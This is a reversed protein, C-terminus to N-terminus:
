FLKKTVVTMNGSKVEQEIAQVISQIKSATSVNQQTQTTLVNTPGRGPFFMLGVDTGKMVASQLRNSPEHFQEDNARGLFIDGIKGAGIRLNDVSKGMAEGVDSVVKDVKQRFNTLGIYDALRDSMMQQHGDPDVFKLSNNLCYQYKNLSQPDHIDAYFTPNHAAVEAFLETPGGTFEDPSTFRGMVSSYYRAEFYDLGTEADREKSTFGQRPPQAQLTGYGDSTQRHGMGALLEEGFPLYDRRKMGSLNGTQDVLMRPTGLGDTVLWQCAGTAEAIVLLQGNRYGYEKKLTATGSVVQYEAVLEGGVGYVQWYEKQVGDELAVRRVRRGDADYTYSGYVTTGSDNTATKIRNEADYNFRAASGGTWTDRTLNGAVDYEMAGSQGAPVKLRHTTALPQNNADTSIDLAFAKRNIGIGWTAVTDLLRNGFRDYKYHQAYAQPLWGISGGGVWSAAPLEDVRTLRNLEDYGYYDVGLMWTAVNGSGDLTAPVFIDQRYLNGNNSQPTVTPWTYDNYSSSYYMRLAGRNWSTGTQNANPGDYAPDSGTGLRVDFLQGRTNYHRRHYLATATGFQERTMQGQPNYLLGTSYTRQTVGDGLKGSFSVLDGAADYSYNANHSAGAPYTKTLIHDALDYTQSTTFNSSWSGGNTKFQQSVSLPRGLADFGNVTKKEVTQGNTEDGGAYSKWLMGKGYAPSNSNDGYVRTIDPNVTTNAYNVTTNRNLADYAYSIKFSAGRADTKGMLNGNADYEYSITGSEPNNAQILRGLSSYEFTRTQTISGSGGIPVGTQSTQILNGLVNYTYDTPQAPVGNIDLNGNADPEDVRVLRGLADVQSRRKKQAQDTVTTFEADYDTMVKGTSITNSGWPPSPPPLTAGAFTEVEILRGGQDHKMRKWAMGPENGANYSYNARYPASVLDYSNPIIPNPPTVNGAFYRTQIKIGQTEDTEETRQPSVSELQRSLRVRGLQDYHQISVLKGDGVSDQDKRVIVRRETDSYVTVTKRLSPQGVVGEEVLTPRGFIDYTTKTTLNNDADTSQTTQGTYFDYQLNTTRKIAAVNDAVRIQTPYLSTHNLGDIDGYVYVTTSGNPDNANKRADDTRILRGTVGTAWNDYQHTVSISNNTTLTGAFAGKTSDWSRELTLNGYQDRNTTDSTPNGNADKIEYDYETYSKVADYNPPSDLCTLDACVEKSAIARKWRPATTQYYIYQHNFNPDTADPTANYYTNVTVRKETLGGPIGTPRGSTRPVSNYAVWDYEVVQTVNGNKDYKYDKIATKVLSGGAGKVSTFETKVYPNVNGSSPTGPPLSEQWIREVVNGDARVTKYVRGAAAGGFSPIYYETVIGGDPGTIHSIGTLPSVSYQWTETTSTATGDYERLYTLDKRKPANDRTVYEWRVYDSPSASRGDLVYEYSAQARPSVSGTPLTVSSIEGWGYSPNSTGNNYTFTYDLGQGQQPLIVQDLVTHEKNLPEVFPSVFDPIPDEAAIYSKYVWFSKWKVIWTIVQENARQEHVSDQNPGSGYEIIVWRGMQDLMKTASHGNYTINQLEIYNNLV